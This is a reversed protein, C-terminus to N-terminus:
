DELNVLDTVSAGRLAQTETSALPLGTAVTVGIRVAILPAAVVMLALGPADIDEKRPSEFGEVVLPTCGV